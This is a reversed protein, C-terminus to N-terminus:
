YDWELWDPGQASWGTSTTGWYDVEWWTYGDSEVPGGIIEGNTGESATDIHTHATGPGDRVWLDTTTIVRDDMVFRSEELWNWDSASWGDEVGDDYEVEYWTYGDSEVPGGTITGTTGEPATDLQTHGTGPGSRVTLNVTTVAFDHYEFTTNTHGRGIYDSMTGILTNSPDQSLEWCMVGGFGNDLAYASKNAVSAENVWSIFEDDVWSYLWPVRADRHWRYDYNDEDIDRYLVAEVDDFGDQFLGRNEPPVESFSYGYFPVGVVLKDNAIPKDAWHQMTHHVSWDQYGMPDEPPPYLPANFNAQESWPGHYNYTMVSIFDVYQDHQGVEYAADVLNPGAGGPYTLTASSGVRADLESRCEALLSTFNQPDEDRITGDPFEWDLDLGDFGYNLVHDVATEAFQERTSQTSAADSFDGSYYGGHITLLFETNGDNYSSFDNLLTDQFSNQLVVTGDPEPALSVVKLHTIDDYPVDSPDYDQDDEAEQYYYGVVRSGSTNAKVSGAGFAGATALAGTGVLFTRRSTSPNEISRDANWNNDNSM